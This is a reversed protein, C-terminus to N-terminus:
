ILISIKKRKTNNHFYYVTYLYIHVPSYVRTYEINSQFNAAIYQSSNFIYYFIYLVRM